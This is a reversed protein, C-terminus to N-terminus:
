APQDNLELSQYLSADALENTIADCAGLYPMNPPGHKDPWDLPWDAHDIAAARHALERIEAGDAYDEKETRLWDAGFPPYPPYILNSSAPSCIKRDNHEQIIQNAKAYLPAADPSPAAGPVTAPQAVVAPGGFLVAAILFYRVM